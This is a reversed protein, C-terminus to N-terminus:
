SAVSNNAVIEAMIIIGGRGNKEGRNDVKRMSYTSPDLFKNQSLQRSRGFVMPFVSKWVRDAMKPGRAAMKSKAPPLAKCATHSQLCHDLSTNAFFIM